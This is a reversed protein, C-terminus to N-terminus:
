QVKIGVITLDDARAQLGIFNRMRWQVNQTVERIDMDQGIAEFASAEVRHLGFEEDDFNLAEILGDTYMMLVDNPQLTFTDKRWRFNLDVGLVAGGTTLHCVQGGRFLLAPPHGANVYTIERNPGDLVGYFLTAFDAVETMECLDDNVRQIVQSMDDLHAAHARLGARISAMLLSARVGKGVVDCVVIGVKGDGFPIFDFFDGNLEFAPRYMATIDMGPIEPRKRPFMRQQVDGALRLHRKINAADVARAQLDTNVIAAAAQAAVAFMLAHEYRDFERQQGTYLRIVGLSRGKYVLPVCLASFLGEARAGDPFLARADKELDPVYVIKGTKIAQHDIRSEELPIPGKILHSDDINNASKILLSEGDESLLRITCSKVPLLKVVAATVLDLVSQLDRQGTFEATLRYLTSLEEVRLRLSKNRSCLSSLMAAMLKLFDVVSRPEGDSRPMEDLHSLAGLAGPSPSLLTLQGVIDDDVRVPVTLQARGVSEPFLDEGLILSGNPECIRVPAGIVTSFTEQMHQLIKDNFYDRITTVATVKTLRIPRKMRQRTIPCM